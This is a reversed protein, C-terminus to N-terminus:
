ATQLVREHQMQYVKESVDPFSLTYLEKWFVQFIRALMWPQMYAIQDFTYKELLVVLADAATIHLSDEYSKHFAEEIKPWVALFRLRDGDTWKHTPDNELATQLKEFYSDQTFQLQYMKTLRFQYLFDYYRRIAKADTRIPMIRVVQSKITPTKSFKVVSVRKMGDVVYFKGLYEYCLIHGLLCNGSSYQLYIDRWQDAFESNPDSVPFFDKTYLASKETAEAVGVILTTPIDIVGLDRRYSIMNEEMLTNLAVPCLPTGKKKAKTLSATALAYAQQYIEHVERAFKM